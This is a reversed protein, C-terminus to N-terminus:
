KLSVNNLKNCISQVITETLAQYGMDKLFKALMFTLRFSCSPKQADSIDSLLQAVNLKTQNQTKSKLFM